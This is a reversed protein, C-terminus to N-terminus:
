SVKHLIGKREWKQWAIEHKKLNNWISKILAVYEVITSVYFLLWGIPSLLYFRALTRFDEEFLFQILFMTSVMAIGSIFSSFDHALYSYIFLFVVFWPELFLQLEGFIALPLLIWTLIKNHKKETSFFLYKYSSFTKFRGHKWRLRQKILGALSTAGETYVIANYAYVIRMGAAQIRVSLDIDETLSKHNYLGVIDFVERRFAGAAGGIIYITNLVSETKKFYFSFLFELYQVIGLVTETNAIKVNGVAAMVDSDTFHAVFNRITSKTLTCDADISIIIEGTSQEIGYNLARGKGGNKKYFYKLNIADECNGILNNKLFARMIKDSGDTSGDNVVIIETNKYDNALITNVTNLIGVEENWAPVIVSVKPEYSHPNHQGGTKNQRFKIVVANWPAVLMYLFYKILLITAFFIILLRLLHDNNIKTPTLIFISIIIGATVVYLFGFILIHRIKQM